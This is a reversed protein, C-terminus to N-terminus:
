NRPVGRSVQFVFAVFERGVFINDLIGLGFLTVTKCPQTTIRTPGVRLTPQSAEFERSVGIRYCTISAELWVEADPKLIPMFAKM